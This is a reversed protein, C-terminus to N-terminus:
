NAKPATIERQALEQRKEADSLQAAFDTMAQTLNGCLPRATQEAVETSTRSKRLVLRFSMYGYCARDAVTEFGNNYSILLDTVLATRGSALLLDESPTSRYYAELNFLNNTPTTPNDSMGLINPIQLKLSQSEGIVRGDPISRLSVILLGNVGTGIFHGENTIGMSIQHRGLDFVPAQVHLAASAQIELQRRMVEWQKKAYETYKVTAVAIVVTALATYFQPSILTKWILTLGRGAGLWLWNLTPRIHSKARKEENQPRSNDSTSELHESLLPVEADDGYEGSQSQELPKDFEDLM